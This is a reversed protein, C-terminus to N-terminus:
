RRVRGNTVVPAPVARRASRAERARLLMACAIAAMVYPLDYYGWSLFFASAAFGTMALAFMPPLMDGHGGRRHLTVLTIISGFIVRGFVM